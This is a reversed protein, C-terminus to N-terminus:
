IYDNNKKPKRRFRKKLSRAGSKMRKKFSRAGSRMRNSLSRTRPKMLKSNGGVEQEAQRRLKALDSQLDPYDPFGGKRM